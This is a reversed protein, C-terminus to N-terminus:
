EELELWPDAVELTDEYRYVSLGNDLELRVADRLSGLSDRMRIGREQVIGREGDKTFVTAGEEARM